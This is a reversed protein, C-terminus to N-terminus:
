AQSIFERARAMLSDEEYRPDYSETVKKKFWTRQSKALRRTNIVIREIMTAADTGYVGKLWDLIEVYGISQLPKEEGSFGQALLGEVEQVLGQELMKHTRTRIIALHDDRPIDLHLHLLDWDPAQSKFSGKAASFAEGTTWFHEVARRVRYHDNAHLREFSERDNQELIRIFPAIGEQSFLLDSRREIEPPTTPSHWM